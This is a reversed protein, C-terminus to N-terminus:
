NCSLKKLCEVKQVGSLVNCESCQEAQLQVWQDPIFEINKPLVFYSKNIDWSKCDFSTEPTGTPSIDDVSVLLDLDENGFLSESGEPDGDKWVYSKRGLVIMHSNSEVGDVVITFDGRIESEGIYYVGEVLNGESIKNMFTCSKSSGVSGFVQALNGVVNSPTPTIQISAQTNPQVKSTKTSEVMFATIKYGSYCVILFIIVLFIRKIM